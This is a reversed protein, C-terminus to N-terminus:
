SKRKPLLTMPNIPMGKKRIEFHLKVRDTGTSGMKAVIDGANVIDGVRVSVSQNHGYASLLKKDHSIIVLNGFGVLGDGAYVVRGAAAAKVPSGEQGELQLSRSFRSKESYGEVVHGSVPWQWGNSNPLSIANLLSKKKIKSSKQAVKKEIISEPEVKIFPPIVNKLKTKTKTKPPIAGKLKLSQGIQIVASTLGNRQQLVEPDQEFRWAISFLTDGSRVLYRSGADEADLIGADITLVEPEIRELSRAYSDIPAGYPSACASLTIILVMFLWTM